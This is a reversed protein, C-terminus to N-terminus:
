CVYELVITDIQLTFCRYLIKVKSMARSRQKKDGQTEMFQYTSYVPLLLSDQLVVGDGGSLVINYKCINDKNNSRSNVCNLIIYRASSMFLTM